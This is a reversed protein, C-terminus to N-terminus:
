KAGLEGTLIQLKLVEMIYLLREPSLTTTISVGAEDKLTAIMLVEEYHQLDLSFAEVLESNSPPHFNVRLVNQNM